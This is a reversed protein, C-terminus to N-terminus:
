SEPSTNSNKKHVEYAENVNEPGTRALPNLIEVGSLTRCFCSVWHKISSPSVLPQLKPEIEVDNMISASKKWLPQSRTAFKTADSRSTGRKTVNSPIRSDSSSEVPVCQRHKWHNGGMACFLKSHKEPCSTQFISLNSQKRAILPENSGTTNNRGFLFKDLVFTSNPLIM